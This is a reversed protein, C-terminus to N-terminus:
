RRNPRGNGKNLNRFYPTLSHCNPCLVRLNEERNDFWDGNVHDVELPVSNTISHREAWGCISCRDQYKENLYRRIHRSIGGISGRSGAELGGKWRSIYDQYEFDQQCQNSFFKMTPRAVKRGCGCLCLVNSRGMSM